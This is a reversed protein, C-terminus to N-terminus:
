RSGVIDKLAERVAPDDSRGLLAIARRRAAPQTDGQAIAVLKRTSERTGAQAMAEILQVRVEGDSVKDYTAIVERVTVGARDLLSAARRRQRAPHAEDQVVQLLFRRAPEGGVQALAGLAADRLRDSGLTPYTRAMTEADAATAFDRALGTMAAIRAEAPADGRAVIARVVRLARPDGSRALVEVAERALWPDAAGETMQILSPIGEGRDLRSLTSVASQRFSGHEQADRAVGALLSVLERTPPADPAERRRVLAGLAARRTERPRDADRVLRVLLAAANASDAIGLARIADRPVRGADSEALAGLFAVAEGSAVRGLDAADAETALPGVFSQLRVIEDGDKVVLVRLPGEACPQTRTGDDVTGYWTDDGLRMYSRGDGCTGPRAALHFQVTNGTAARVRRALGGPQAAPATPEPRFQLPLPPVDGALIVLAPWGCTCAGHLLRRMM